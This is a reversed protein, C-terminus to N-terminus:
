ISNSSTKQTEMVHSAKHLDMNMMVRNKRDVLDYYVRTAPTDEHKSLSDYLSYIKFGNFTEYYTGFLSNLGDFNEQGVTDYILEINGNRRSKIIADQNQEYFERVLFLSHEYSTINRYRSDEPNDFVFVGDDHMMKCIDQSILENMIENFLEYPRKEDSIHVTEAVNKSKAIVENLRDWGVIVSYHDDNVDDLFLEFLHNLEHVIDHDNFNSDYDGKVLLLSSLDYGNSTLTVNPNLFTGHKEYVAADFSDNKDLLNRDEIEQRIKKNEPLSNFYENHYQNLIEDHSNQLQEIREYSPWIAKVEEKDLYNEYRDGFDIRNAKFYAIRKNKTESVIWASADKNHLMEENERSFAFLSIDGSLSYGFIDKIYSSLKYSNNPNLFFEELGERKDVPILDLNEQIFKAYYKDRLRCDLNEADSVYDTYSQFKSMYLSFEDLAGAYREVLQNLDLFKSEQLKENFNDQTISSDVKSLLPFCESFADLYEKAINNSDFVYDFNSKLWFPLSAYDKPIEKKQVIDMFDDFTLDPLYKHFLSYKEQYFQNKRGDDGLQYLKYFELYKHIPQLSSYTFEYDSFLDDKTLPVSSDKLLKDILENSKGKAINSLLRKLSSPEQHGIFLCKSFKEEIEERISEGYFKSYFRIFYEKFVYIHDRLYQNFDLFILLRDEM